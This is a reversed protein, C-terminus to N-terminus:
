CSSTEEILDLYTPPDMYSKRLEYAKKCSAIWGQLEELNLEEWEYSYTNYYGEITLRSRVVLSDLDIQIEKIYKTESM